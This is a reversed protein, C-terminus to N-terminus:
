LTLRFPFETNATPKILQPICLETDTTCATLTKKELM